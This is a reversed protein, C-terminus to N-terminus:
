KFHIEVKLDLDLISFLRDLSDATPNANGTELRSIESQHTGILSALAMQSLGKRRRAPAIEKIITQFWEATIPKFKDPALKSAFVKRVRRRNYYKTPGGTTITIYQDNEDSHAEVKRTM